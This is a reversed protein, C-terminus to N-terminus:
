LILLIDATNLRTIPERLPGLPLIKKNGFLKQRDLLVIELTRLATSYGM